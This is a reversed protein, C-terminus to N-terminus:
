GKLLVRITDAGEFPTGAAEGTIVLTVEIIKGTDEGYDVTGLWEIVVAREFKVMLDPISDADYDGVETPPEPNVSISGNLLISSVDIESVGYKEPLEIYATIWQGNSKSNLTDPDIDITATTRTPGLKVLWFDGNVAGFSETYGALAYGGDDTRVMSWTRDYNEDGHTKNWEMHGTSNTKVLWSDYDGAGSPDNTFGAVAYGGDSTKVISYAKDVAKGGYTQNWEMHGTRNTKVLWFDPFDPAGAGFSETDGALAYGGDDTLVMSHADELYSGGYTQNWQEHGTQNTKILWFDGSRADFSETLGAMAYGGDDTQVVSYAIDSAGWTGGYTQNWEMTGNEDIKILWCDGRYGQAPIETTGALAYGGDDTQIISYAYENRRGSYGYKHNWQEHGTSNTKVLWMDRDSSGPGTVGALAYGGDDTEILAEARDVYDNHYTRNWQMHGTSNTKVLWFDCPGNFSGTFGAIAYGGDETQVVSYANDQLPTGYRRNWEIEPPEPCKAAQIGFALISISMMLALVIASVIKKM